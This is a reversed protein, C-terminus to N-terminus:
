DLKIVDRKKERTPRQAAPARGGAQMQQGAYKLREALAERRSRIWQLMFQPDSSEQPKSKSWFEL